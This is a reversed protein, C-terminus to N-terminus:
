SSQYIYHNVEFLVESIFTEEYNRGQNYIYSDYHGEQERVDIRKMDALSYEIAKKKTDSFEHFVEECFQYPENPHNFTDINERYM